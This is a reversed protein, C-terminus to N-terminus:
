WRVNDNSREIELSKKRRKVGNKEWKKGNKRWVRLSTLRDRYRHEYAYNRQSQREDEDRLRARRTTYKSLAVNNITRETTQQTSAIRSRVMGEERIKKENRLCIVVSYSLLGSTVVVDRQSAMRYSEVRM